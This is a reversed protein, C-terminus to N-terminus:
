QEPPLKFKSVFISPPFIPKLAKEKIYSFYHLRDLIFLFIM